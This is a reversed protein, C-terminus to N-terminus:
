CKLNNILGLGLDLINTQHSMRMTIISISTLTVESDEETQGYIVNLHVIRSKLLVHFFM